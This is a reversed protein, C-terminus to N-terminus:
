LKLGTGKQNKKSMPFLHEKIRLINGMGMKRCKAKDKAFQIIWFRKGVLGM